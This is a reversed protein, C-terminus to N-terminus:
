TLSKILVFALWVFIAVQKDSFVPFSKELFSTLLKTLFNLLCSVFLGTTSSTKPDIWSAPPCIRYMLSLSLHTSTRKMCVASMSSSRCFLFGLNNWSRCFSFGLNNWHSVVKPLSNIYVVGFYAKPWFQNSHSHIDSRADARCYCWCLFNLVSSIPM